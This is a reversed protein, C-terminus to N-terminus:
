EWRGAYLLNVVLTTLLATGFVFVYLRWYSRQRYFRPDYPGERSFVHWLWHIPWVVIIFLVAYLLVLIAIPIM